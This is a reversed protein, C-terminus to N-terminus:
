AVKWTRGTRIASVNGGTIGYEAAIVAIPRQDLRIAAAQEATLKAKHHLAGSPQRGKAAKDQMNWKQTEPILHGERVCPPNDCTHCAMQGDELPRGAFRLALHTAKTYKGDRKLRGYGYVDISGTWHHCEGKPGQGPSTDVRSWFEEEIPRQKARRAQKGLQAACALSCVKAKFWRDHGYNDPRPFERECVPCTKVLPLDHYKRHAPM